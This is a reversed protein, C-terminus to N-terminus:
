FLFFIWCETNEKYTGNKFCVVCNTAAYLLSQGSHGSSFKRTHFRRQSKPDDGTISKVQDINLVKLENCRLILNTSAIGAKEENDSLNLVSKTSPRANTEILDLLYSKGCHNPGYM